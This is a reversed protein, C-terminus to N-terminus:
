KEHIKYWEKKLGGTTDQAGSIEWNDNGEILVPGDPTIAVDWGISPVDLLAKHANITLEVAENWYPIITGEYIHNTVSHRTEVKHHGVGYKQMIGSRSIAVGVGGTARNDNIANCGVRMYQAFLHPSNSKKGVITIIRITNICSPNIRNILEHQVLKNQIIFVSGKTTQTFEDIDSDSSLLYCGDGCEGSIKKVFLEDSQNKIFKSLSMMKHDKFCKVMGNSEIKGVTPVIFRKGLAEGFFASFLIKDRLICLKNNYISSPYDELFREIRFTRYPLYDDQNRFGEIDFGYSNYYKCVEKHKIYWNILEKKRQKYSKRKMGKWLSEEALIGKIDKYVALLNVTAKIEHFGCSIYPYVKM